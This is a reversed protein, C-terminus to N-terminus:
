LARLLNMIVQPLNRFFFGHYAFAKQASLTIVTSIYVYCVQGTHTEKEVPEWSHGTIDSSCRSYIVPVTQIIKLIEGSKRLVSTSRGCVVAMKVNRRERGVSKRCRSQWWPNAVRIIIALIYYGSPVFILSHKNMYYKEKSVSRKM